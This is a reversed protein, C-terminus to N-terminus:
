RKLRMDIIKEWPNSHKYLKNLDIGDNLFKKFIHNYVDLWIDYHKIIRKKDLKINNKFKNYYEDNLFDWPKYRSSFHLNYIDTTKFKYKINKLSRGVEYNYIFFIYTWDNAYYLSLYDQEHKIDIQKNELIDKLIFNFTNISPKLVMLGANIRGVIKGNKIIRDKPIKTNHKITIRSSSAAPANLKFLHDINKLILMDTDLMIIKDYEILTFMNMKTFVDKFRDKHIYKPNSKIFDIQKLKFYKSLVKRQNNPVDNTILLIKDHQTKTKYLSYGLLLAGIFYNSDGYLLSVYAYKKNM